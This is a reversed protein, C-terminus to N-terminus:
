DTAPQRAPPGRSGSSPIISKLLSPIYQLYPSKIISCLPLSSSMRGSSTRSPIQISHGFRSILILLALELGQRIFQGWSYKHGNQINTPIFHQAFSHFYRGVDQPHFAPPLGQLSGIAAQEYKTDPNVKGGEKEVGGLM